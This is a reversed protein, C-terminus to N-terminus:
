AAVGIVPLLYPRAQRRAVDDISEDGEPPRVPGWELGFSWRADALRFVARTGSRRAPWGQRSARKRVSDASVERGLVGALYAALAAPDSWADGLQAALRAVADPGSWRHGRACRAEQGDEYARVRVQEGDHREPCDGLPVGPDDEGLARRLDRAASRLARLAAGAWWAATIPGTVRELRLSEGTVTRMGCLPGLLEHERCRDAVRGLVVLTPEGARALNDPDGGSTLVPAVHGGRAVEPPAYQLSLPAVACPPKSTFGVPGRAGQTGHRGPQLELRGFDARIRAPLEVLARECRTCLLGGDHPAPRDCGDCQRPVDLHARQQDTPAFM